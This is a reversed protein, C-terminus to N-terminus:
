YVRKQPKYKGILVPQYSFRPGDPTYEAITHKLWNTDDREKHDTRFHAGRTETRALAGKAIVEAIDLMGELELVRILELNYTTGKSSVGVKEFRKKLDAIIEIGRELGIQNRFIGVYKDMTQQLEHMIKTSETGGNKKNFLGKIKSKIEVVASNVYSESPNFRENRVYNLAAVGARRGFVLTELLSNAGLRNAGHVSVCAAEGAAYIGKINTAGDIDTGIGGMSYHQVPRVPIPKKLPDIGIFSITLERIQSLRKKVIEPDLHTVDLHLYGGMDPFGRGENIEIMMSRAVIDRPALEPPKMSVYKEMFREGLRNKLIGGEGRVGETILIGTTPLGTPHFQIFESDKLTVGAWYAIANGFGTNIHANTTFSYIRGLGGTAIIITKAIFGEVEGTRLSLAVVGHVYGDKVVLKLVMYENFVFLNEKLSREYMTELLAHGTKDSAYCARAYSGGGFPRQAIKGEETRSFPVGWHEMEYVRDIGERCLIEAADQDALYDSGKVTDYTHTYVNDEKNDGRNGLAANVGGEAASSHSRMPYVKTLMAVKANGSLEIGARLGALGGGIIIVDFKNM